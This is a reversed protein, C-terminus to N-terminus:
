TEPWIDIADLSLRAAASSARYSTLKHKVSMPEAVVAIVHDKEAVFIGRPFIDATGVAAVQGAIEDRMLEGSLNERRFPEFGHAPGNVFGGIGFQGIHSM